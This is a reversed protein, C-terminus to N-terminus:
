RRSEQTIEETIKNFIKDKIHKKKGWGYLYTPHYTRFSKKVNPIIIECLERDLFGEVKKKDLTGFVDKLIWDYGPGTLFIIYDPKLIEIEKAILNNLHPKVLESYFKKPFNKGRGNYGMKVLNNWLNGIRKGTSKKELLNIIEKIGKWFHSRYKRCYENYCYGSIFFEAYKYRIEEITKGHQYMEYWGNTEQGFIMIKIESNEYWDHSRLFLPLTACYSKDKQSKNYEEVNDLLDKEAKKYLRELENDHQEVIKAIDIDSMKRDGERKTQRQWVRPFM